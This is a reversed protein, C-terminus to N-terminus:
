NLKAAHAPAAGAADAEEKRAGALVNALGYNGEHCAYEFMRGAATHFTMEGRWPRTFLSPDTIEYEYLLDGESTRTFREVSTTQGSVYLRAARYLLGPKLGVTEVVLTAAEWRGVSDGMWAPPLPNPRPPGGIRVIRVDHYKETLIAVAGPTQVIQMLNTDPAGLIPAGAAGNGLCRESPPRNEPNDFSEPRPTKDLGLRAIVEPRYPLRGDPPDVIGSSRIQGKVHALGSGRDNWESEPQGLEGPKSPAQGNLARRPAEWAEAEAPTLVLNKLEKPRELDTYSGLHWLGELSPPNRRAASSAAGAGAWATVAMLMTRRDIM